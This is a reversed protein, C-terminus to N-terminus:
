YGPRGPDRRPIRLPSSGRLRPGYPASDLWAAARESRPALTAAVRRRVRARPGRPQMALLASAAARRNRLAAEHREAAFREVAATAEHRDTARLAAGLAAAAVHADAIGSNMGRAGFPAFLHAADGVLLVRRQADTLERAVVQLFRYTSVWRVRQAYRGGMVKGVWERGGAHSGWQDPDDGSRCQLDARWGGPFPVLLVNRGGVAPHEYHFVREPPCPAQPDEDVDVIVYSSQSRDGEMSVGIAQRVASRAGDAAVVYPATWRTGAATVVEVAGPGAALERVASSWVLEVGSAECAQLLCREVEPQPLSAFPPLGHTAPPPYSRAFVERGRWLTRKASWVLGRRGLERGLGPRSRELLELSARHTYIARSGPRLRDEPESELVAVEVDLARLALACSLGVPGAGVVLVPRSAPSGTGSAKM